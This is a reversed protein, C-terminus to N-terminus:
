RFQKHCSRCTDKIASLSADALKQDKGETSTALDAARAGLQDAFTNFGPGKSFSEKIKASSVKLRAAVAAFQAYDADTYSAAGIKKFAPDSLQAQSWMIAGLDKATPIDADGMINKPMCASLSLAPLAAALTLARAIKM